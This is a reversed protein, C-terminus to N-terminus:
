MLKYKTCIINVRKKRPVNHQRGGDAADEGMSDDEEMREDSESESEQFV